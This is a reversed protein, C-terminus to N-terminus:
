AMMWQLKTIYLEDRSIVTVFKWKEGKKTYSRAQVPDGVKMSRKAEPTRDRKCTKYPGVMVDLKTRIKRGFM